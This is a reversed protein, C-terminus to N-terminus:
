ESENNKKKLFSITIMGQMVEGKEAINKEFDSEASFKEMSVSHVNVLYDINELKYLYKMYNKFEGTLKLKLFTGEGKKIKSSKKDLTEIEVELEVEDAMKELKKILEVDGNESVFFEDILSKNEELFSIGKKYKGIKGSEKRLNDKLLRAQEMKNKRAYVENKLPRVVFIIMGTLILLFVALIIWIKNNKLFHAM